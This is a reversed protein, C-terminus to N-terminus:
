RKMRQRRVSARRVRQRPPKIVEPERALREAEAFLARAGAILGRKAVAPAATIRERAALRTQALTEGTATLLQGKRRGFETRLFAVRSPRRALLGFELAKGTALPINERRLFPGVDKAKLEEAKFWERSGKKRTWLIARAGRTAAMRQPNAALFELAERRTRVETPRKTISIGTEFTWGWEFQQPLRRAQAAPTAM